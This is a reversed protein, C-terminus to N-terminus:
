KPKTQDIEQLVYDIFHQLATAWRSWFQNSNSKADGSFPVAVYQGNVRVISFVETGKMHSRGHLIQVITKASEMLEAKLDSSIDTRGLQRQIGFLLLEEQMAWSVRGHYKYEDFLEQIERSAFVPNAILIGASPKGPSAPAKLGYPFDFLIRQKVTRLYEASPHGFAMMMSDDSHMVPIPLGNKDLSIAYFKLDSLPAEPLGNIGLSYLYSEAASKAQEPTVIIEFFKVAQTNWVQFFQNMENAVSLDQLSSKTTFIEVMAKLAGPVLATNVDFPFVGRAIGNESDRWQGTLEGHKLGVLNKAVPNHAFAQSMSQVYKLNSKILQRHPYGRPDIRSLFAELREPYEKAFNGLVITFAFDDDIMKYDEIPNSVGKYKQHRRFREHAVFDGEHQEHSIRGKTPHLSALAAALLNEIAQPKLIKMFVNLSFLSDRGFKSLYRPSGALLKEKYILFSIAQIEEQPMTALVEAKFIDEPKVPTLTQETTVGTIRLKVQTKSKFQIGFANQSISTDGLGEVEIQYENLGNISKRSLVLKNAILQTKNKAVRDPIKVGLERDRIFRMSGLVADELELTSTDFKIDVSVGHFPRPRDANKVSSTATMVVSKQPKFFLSVGSNGAPFAIFLYPDKSSDMYIHASTRGERFLHEEIGPFEKKLYVDTSSKSFLASCINVSSATLPILFTFLLASKILIKMIKIALHPDHKKHREFLKKATLEVRSGRRFYFRTLTSPGWHLPSAM